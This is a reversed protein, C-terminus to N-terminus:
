SFCPSACRRSACTGEWVSAVSSKSRWTRAASAGPNVGCGSLLDGRRVGLAEECQNLTACAALRRLVEGAFLFEPAELKFYCGVDQNGAGFGLVDDFDGEIAESDAFPAGAAFLGEGAFAQLDGIDAGAGAADGDGERFIQGSCRDVGGINRARSEGDGAAVGSAMGDGSADMEEFAIQEIAEDMARRCVRADGNYPRLM